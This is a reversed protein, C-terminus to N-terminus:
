YNMLWGQTSIKNFCGGGYPNEGCYEAKHATPVDDAFSEGIEGDINIELKYADRGWINPGQPGNVDIFLNSLEYKSSVRNFCLTADTKLIACVEGGFNNNILGNLERYEGAYCAKVGGDTSETCIKSTNFNNKVFDALKKTDKPSRKKNFADTDYLRKANKVEMYAPVAYSVTDFVRHLQVTMVRKQHGILMSPLVIAAVVAMIGVTILIELLTFGKKM